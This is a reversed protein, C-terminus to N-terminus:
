QSRGRQGLEPLASMGTQALVGLKKHNVRRKHCFAAGDGGMIEWIGGFVWLGSVGADRTVSEGQGLGEGMRVMNVPAGLDLGGGLRM